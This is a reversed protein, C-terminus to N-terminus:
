GIAAAVLEAAAQVDRVILAGPVRVSRVGIAALRESIRADKQAARTGRHHVTSDCFVALMHDEFYMDAETIMEPIEEGKSDTWFHYLSPFMSGDSFFLMQLTPRLSRQLLAQFLFLEIPSEAGWVRRARKDKFPRFLLNQRHRLYKRNARDNDLLRVGLVDDPDYDTALYFQDYVLGLEDPFGRRPQDTMFIDVRGWGAWEGSFPDFGVYVPHDRAVIASLDIQEVHDVGVQSVRGRKTAPVLSLAYPIGHPIGDIDIFKAVSVVVFVLQFSTGRERFLALEGATPTDSLLGGAATAMAGTIPQVGGLFLISMKIWDPVGSLDLSFPLGPLTAYAPDAILSTPRNKIM